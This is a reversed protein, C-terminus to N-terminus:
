VSFTLMQFNYFNVISTNPFNSYINMILTRNTTHKILEVTNNKRKIEVQRPKYTIVPNQKQFPLLYSHTFNVM